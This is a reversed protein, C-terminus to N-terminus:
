LAFLGLSLADVCQRAVAPPLGRAVLAALLAAALLPGALRLAAALAIRWSLM